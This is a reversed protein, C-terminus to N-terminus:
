LASRDIEFASDLGRIVSEPHKATPVFNRLPTSIKPYEDIFALNQVQPIGFDLMLKVLAARDSGWFKIYKSETIFLEILTEKTHFLLGFELWADQTLETRYKELTALVHARPFYGTTVPEEDHLGYVCSLEKDPFLATLAAFVEWLRSNNVNIAAYFTFPLQQTDNPTYMFGEQIRAQKRKQLIEEMDERHPMEHPLPVRITVPLELM